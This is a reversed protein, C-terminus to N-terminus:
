DSGGVACDNSYEKPLIIGDEKFKVFYPLLAKMEELFFKWYEVVDKCKHEDFFVGKQVNKWKYGLRNLWKRTTKSRIGMCRETISSARM